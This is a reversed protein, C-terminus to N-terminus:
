EAPFDPTEFRRVKGKYIRLEGKIESGDGALDGQYILIEDTDKRLSFKRTTPEGLIEIAQEADMGAHIQNWVSPETWAGSARAEAKKLEIRMNDFWGKREKPEITDAPATQSPAPTAAFGSPAPADSELSAVRSELQQVQSRLARVEALLADIREDASSTAFPTALIILALLPRLTPLM